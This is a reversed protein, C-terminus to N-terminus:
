VALSELSDFYSLHRAVEQKETQQLDGEQRLFIRRAKQNKSNDNQKDKISKQCHALLPEKFQNLM